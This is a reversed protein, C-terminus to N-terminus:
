SIRIMQDFGSIKFVMKISPAVNIISFREPGLTKATKLCIRLFASSVYDVDRMEFVVHKQTEDIRQQVSDAIDNCIKSDQRGSFVLTVRDSTETVSFM